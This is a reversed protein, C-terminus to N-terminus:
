NLNVSSHGIGPSHGPGKISDKQGTTTLGLEMKRGMIDREGVHSHGIGPSHGAPEKVHGDAATTSFEQMKMTGMNDKGGVHSHGIGPSNGTATPEFGNWGRSLERSESPFIKEHKQIGAPQQELKRAHTQLGTIQTQVYGTDHEKVPKIQRGQTAQTELCVILALILFLFMPINQFYNAM